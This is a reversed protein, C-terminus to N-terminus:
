EVEDRPLVGLREAIARVMRKMEAASQFRHGPDNAVAKHVVDGWGADFPPECWSTSRPIVGRQGTLLEFTISGAAFVDSRADPGKGEKQEPSMYDANGHGRLWDQGVLQALGVDAARAVIRGEREDLFINAPTLSGHFVGKAHAYALADLVHILFRALDGQKLCGDCAAAVEALSRAEGKRHFVSLSIGEVYEMGLVHRGGPQGLREVRVIGPHRLSYLANALREFRARFDPSNSLEVPFVRYAYHIGTELDVAERVQGFAGDGLVRLKRIRPGQGSEGAGGAGEARGKVGKADQM